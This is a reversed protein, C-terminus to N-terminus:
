INRFAKTLCIGVVVLGILATVAAGIGIGAWIM